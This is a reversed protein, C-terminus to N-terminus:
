FSAEDLEELERRGSEYSLDSEGRSMENAEIKLKTRSEDRERNRRGSESEDDSVRVGRHREKSAGRPLERSMVSAGRM